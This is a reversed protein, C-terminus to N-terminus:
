VLCLWSCMKWVTTMHSPCILMNCDRFSGTRIKGRLTTRVTRLRGVKGGHAILVYCDGVAAEKRSRLFSDVKLLLEQCGGM